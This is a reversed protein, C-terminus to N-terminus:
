QAKQTRNFLIASINPRKADACARASLYRAQALEHLKTYRFYNKNDSSYECAFNGCYKDQHYFICLRAHRDPTVGINYDVVYPDLLLANERIMKCSHTGVQYDKPADSSIFHVMKDYAISAKVYFTDAYYAWKDAIKNLRNYEKIENLIQQLKSM